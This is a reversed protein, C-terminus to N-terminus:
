KLLLLKKMKEERDTKLRYLYIGSAVPKEQENTGNWNCTYDGKQLFENKLIAVRQGKMNFVEVKAQSDYLLSFSITTGSNRETGSLNFPNPYNLLNSEWVSITENEETSLLSIDILQSYINFGGSTIM